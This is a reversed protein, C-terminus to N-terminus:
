RAAYGAMHVRHGDPPKQGDAEEKSALYASQVALLEESKLSSPPAIGLVREQRPNSSAILRWAAFGGCLPALLGSLQSEGATQRASLPSERRSASKKRARRM